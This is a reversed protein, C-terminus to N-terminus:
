SGEAELEGSASAAADAFAERLASKESNIEHRLRQQEELAQAKEVADADAKRSRRYARRMLANKEVISEILVHQNDSLAALREQADTEADARMREVEDPYLDEPTSGIPHREDATDSSIEKGVYESVMRGGSRYYRYWYPGHVRGGALCKECDGCSIMELQLSM